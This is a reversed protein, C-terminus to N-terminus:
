EACALSITAYAADEYSLVADYSVGASASAEVALKVEGNLNHGQGFALGWSELRLSQELTPNSAEIEVVEYDLAGSSFVSTVGLQPTNVLWHITSDGKVDEVEVSVQMYINNFNPKINALATVEVPNPPPNGLGLLKAWPGAEEYSITVSADADVSSGLPNGLDIDVDASADAQVEVGTLYSAASFLNAEVFVYEEGVKEYLRVEMRMSSDGLQSQSSYVGEGEFRLGGPLAAEDELVLGVVGTVLGVAIRVTLGGCAILEHISADADYALKASAALEAQSHGTGCAELSAVASAEVGLSALFNADTELSDTEEEEEEEEAVGADESAENTNAEDKSSGGCACFLSLLPLLLLRKM